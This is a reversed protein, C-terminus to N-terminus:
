FELEDEDEPPDNNHFERMIQFWPTDSEGAAYLDKNLVKDSFKLWFILFITVAGCIQGLVLADVAKRGRDSVQNQLNYRSPIIRMETERPILSKSIELNQYHTLGKGPKLFFFICISFFIGFLVFVLAANAGRRLTDLNSPAETAVYLTPLTSLVVWVLLALGEVIFLGEFITEKSDFLTGSILALLQTRGFCFLEWACWAGLFLMVVFVIKATSSM